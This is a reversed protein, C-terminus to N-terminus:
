YNNMKLRKVVIIFLSNIGVGLIDYITWRLRDMPM